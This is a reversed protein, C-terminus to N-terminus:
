VGHVCGNLARAASRDRHQHPQARASPTSLLEGPTPGCCVSALDASRQAHEMPPRVISCPAFRTCAARLPIRLYHGRLESSMDGVKPINSRILGPRRRPSSRARRQGVICGRWDASRPARAGRATPQYEVLRFARPGNAVPNLRWSWTRGFGTHSVKATNTRNLGPRRHPSSHACPQGLVCRRWTRVASRM